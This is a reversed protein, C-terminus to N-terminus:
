KQMKELANNLVLEGCLEIIVYIASPLFCLFFIYEEKRSLNPKRM